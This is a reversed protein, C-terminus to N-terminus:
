NLNANAATTILGSTSDIAFKASHVSPVLSFTFGSAADYPTDSADVDTAVIAAGVAASNANENVTRTQDDIVPAENVDNVNVNITGTASM